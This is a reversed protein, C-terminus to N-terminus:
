EYYIIKISITYITPLLHAVVEMNLEVLHLEVVPVVLNDLRLILLHDIVDALVTREDQFYSPHM